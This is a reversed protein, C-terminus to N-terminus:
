GYHRKPRRSFTSLFESFSSVPLKRQKQIMGTWIEDAEDVTLINNQFAQYIVDQTMILSINKNVCQMKIDSLNNSGLSGFNYKLYAMCAAEGRGLRGDELIRALELAEPDTAQISVLKISGNDILSQVRKALHEIRSLENMVEDLVVMQKAYLKELIDLRDVWAFSSLLDTDLVLPPETLM